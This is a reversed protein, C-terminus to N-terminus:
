DDQEQSGRYKNTRGTMSWESKDEQEQGGYNGEIDRGWKPSMHIMKNDM